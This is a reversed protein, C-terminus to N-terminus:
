IGIKKVQGIAIHQLFAKGKSFIVDYGRDKLMAVFVLNKTLRPVHMANKLTLPAVHERQFTITGVSTVSYKDDDGMEIHMKLYKDELESFLEKNGIMHFSDGSDLYWVSGMMSSVMCAILSFDLEFQSALAEGEVGRSSKEKSKKLPFNTAFHGMNHYHFCKVKMMDKKKGGHYSDSKSPSITGKGKRVKIVLSCNEDDDTNSSSGDRTNRRIEVQTM